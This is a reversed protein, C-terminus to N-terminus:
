KDLIGGWEVVTFGERVPTIIEPNTILIEEKRPKFYFLLRIETDPTPDVTLKVNKNLYEESLLKIEYYNSEPLKELWYEKFQYLEKENLGMKKLNIDFWSELEPYPVLWGEKPTELRFRFSIGEYFLYDYKGDIIGDTTVFVNWGGNYKPITETFIGIYRLKVSVDMDEEPYLYIAPKAMGITLATIIIFLFILFLIVVVITIIKKNPKKKKIDEKEVKNEKTTKKESM